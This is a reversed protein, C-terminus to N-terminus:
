NQGFKLVTAESGISIADVYFDTVGFIRFPLGSRGELESLSNM